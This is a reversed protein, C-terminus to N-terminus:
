KRQKDTARRAPHNKATWPSDISRIPKDPRAPL